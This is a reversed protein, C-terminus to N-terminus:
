ASAPEHRNELLDLLAQARALLPAHAPNARCAAVADAFAERAAGLEQALLRNEALALTHAPNDPELFQLATFAAAALGHRGLRQLCLAAGRLLVPDTPRYVLLAQFGRLAQEHRGQTFESHARGYLLQVDDETLRRTHPLAELRHRLDSLLAHLTDTSTTDDPRM